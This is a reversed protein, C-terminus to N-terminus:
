APGRVADEQDLIRTQAARLSCEILRIRDDCVAHEVQGSPRAERALHADQELGKLLGADEDHDANTRM